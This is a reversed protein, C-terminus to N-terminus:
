SEKPPDVTPIALTFYSPKNRWESNSSTKDFILHMLLAGQVSLPMAPAMTVSVERKWKAHWLLRTDGDPQRYAEDLERYLPGAVPDQEVKRVLKGLGRNAPFQNHAAQLQPLVLRAWGNEWNPLGIERAYRSLIMWEMTNTPAIGGPFIDAFKQNYFAVNWARDTIYTALNQENVVTQWHEGLPPVTEAHLPYPPHDNRSYLWLARWDEETMRLVSALDQLYEPTAATRGSGTEFRNYTGDARNTLLDIDAQRLGKRPPRGTSSHLTRTPQLLGLETPDIAGRLKTLFLKLARRDM